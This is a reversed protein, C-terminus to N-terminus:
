LNLVSLKLYQIILVNIKGDQLQNKLINNNTTTLTTCSLTQTSTLNHPKPFQARISPNAPSTGKGSSSDECGSWSSSKIWESWWCPQPFAMREEINAHWTCAHSSNNRLIVSGLGIQVYLKYPKNFGVQFNLIVSALSHSVHGEKM